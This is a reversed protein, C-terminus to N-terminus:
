FLSKALNDTIHPGLVPENRYNPAQKRESSIPPLELSKCLVTCLYIINLNILFNIKNSSNQKTTNKSPGKLQFSLNHGNDNRRYIQFKVLQMNLRFVLLIRVRKRRKIACFPFFLLFLFFVDMM